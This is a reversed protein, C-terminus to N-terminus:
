VSMLLSVIMRRFVSLLIRRFVSMLIRSLVSIFVSMVFGFFTYGLLLAIMKEFHYQAKQIVVTMVLNDSESFNLDKVLHSFENSKVAGM